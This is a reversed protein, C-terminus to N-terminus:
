RQPFRAFVEPAFGDSVTALVRRLDALVDEGRHAAHILAIPKGVLEPRSVLWDM